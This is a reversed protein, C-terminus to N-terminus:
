LHHQVHKTPSQLLWESQRLFGFQGVCSFSPPVERVDHDRFAVQLYLLYKIRTCYQPQGYMEKRDEPSVDPLSPDEIIRGDLFEM